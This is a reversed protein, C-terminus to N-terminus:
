VTWYNQPVNGLKQSELYLIVWDRLPVEQKAIGVGVMRIEMLMWTGYWVLHSEVSWHNLAQLLNNLGPLTYEPLVTSSIGPNFSSCPHRYPDPLSPSYLTWVFGILPFTLVQSVAHPLWFCIPVAIQGTQSAKLFSTLWFLTLTFKTVQNHKLNCRRQHIEIYRLSAVQSSKTLHTTKGKACFFFIDYIFKRWFYNLHWIYM